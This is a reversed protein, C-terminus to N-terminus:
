CDSNQLSGSGGATRAEGLNEPQLLFVARLRESAVARRVALRASRRTATLHAREARTATPTLRVSQLRTLWTSAKEGPRRNWEEM